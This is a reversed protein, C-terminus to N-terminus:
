RASRKGDSVALKSGDPSWCPSMGSGIEVRRQDDQNQVVILDRGDRSTVQFALRKDDPSWAPMANGGIERLVSGDAAIVFCKRNGGGTPLADFAVFNGDHSWCPVAHDSYGDVQALKRVYQGDIAM